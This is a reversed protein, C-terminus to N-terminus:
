FIWGGKRTQNVPPDQYSSQHEKDPLLNSRIKLRGPKVKKIQGDEKVTNENLCFTKLIWSDGNTLSAVVAKSKM